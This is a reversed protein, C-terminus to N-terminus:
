AHGVRRSGMLAASEARIRISLLIANAISAVLALLPLGLCLPLVAIEGIVVLYNPHSLIRYPGNAVLPADPLVIIRTTWRSGLTMLTWGRLIQLAVFIAFWAPNVPNTSGLSWLSALWLAHFLVIAPYHRPAFEVAGKALLMATNRRALLLEAFRELTVAVLLLAAPTVRSEEPFRL